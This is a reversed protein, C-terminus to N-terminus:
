RRNEIPLTPLDDAPTFGFLQALFSYEAALAEARTSAKRFGHGEGEFVVMAMPLGRSRAADALATAQELPVVPDDSGQLILIPSRLKDLSNIPSRTRYAQEAAPWPGILSDNYHSEFKHTDLLAVLDTVGYRTIGANFRTSTTLARLATFGGASGGAIAVRGPDALGADIAAEVADICDDVDAVGWLGRLRNRWRRGFGASGSYNVDLVAFGRSTWFQVAAHYGNHAMATPGSHVRLLLPPRRGAPAAYDANSPPYYWAQVPGHRGNFHLSRAVSTYARDPAPALTRLVELTGDDDVRVLARHELPRDVIAYGVGLACAVSDVSSVGALRRTPGGDTPVIALQGLGDTFSFGLLQTPSLEAFSNVGLQWLPLAFDAEDSHLARIQGDRWAVLQAYGRADSIFALSGDSLWQPNQVAIGDLGTNPLGAIREVQDVTPQEGTRLRGVRLVTADWPMAPHQWELWALRGDPSLEPSACFDAGSVLVTDTSPSGDPNPWGLAVISHEPEGSRRHDERVALVLPVEPHVRLDGYRLQPDGSTLTRVTGDPSRLKVTRDADDCYVLVGDRSHCAGGGYENVRSRVSAPTPTLESVEGDRLRLVTVRGDQDPRSECWLLDAGDSILGFLNAGASVVHDIGIPSAWAGHPATIPPQRSSM